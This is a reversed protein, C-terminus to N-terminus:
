FGGKVKITQGTANGNAGSALFVIVRAVEESTSLRGTLTAKTVHNIVGESVRGNVTRETPILGPQVVNVLIGSPALESALVRSLGHLAAKAAAYASTGPFGEDALGSSVLVIRGWGSGKMKKVVHQM